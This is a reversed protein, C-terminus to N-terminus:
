QLKLRYFNLPTSAAPPSTLNFNGAADFHNSAIVMWQSPALTLGTSTLVWYPWNPVGNAGSFVFNSGSSNMAGFHPPPTPKSVVSLIGNTLSNTNWALNVGPIVPSLNTFAGSYNAASFIKFSDGASFSTAGANTLVLTGGYLLNGTVQALDNSPSLSKNIQILTESGGNLTLNNSFTLTGIAM